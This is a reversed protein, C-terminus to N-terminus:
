CPYLKQWSQYQSVSSSTNYPIFNLEFKKRYFAYSLIDDVLEEPIDDTLAKEKLRDKFEKLEHDGSYKRYSEIFEEIMEYHKRLGHIEQESDSFPPTIYIFPM